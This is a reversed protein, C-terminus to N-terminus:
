KNIFWTERMQEKSGGSSISNVHSIECIQVHMQEHEREM